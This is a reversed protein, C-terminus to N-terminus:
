KGESEMLKNRLYCGFYCLGFGVIMGIIAWVSEKDIINM